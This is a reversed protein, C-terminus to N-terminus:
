DMQKRLFTPIELDEPMAAYHLTTSGDAVPRSAPHSPSRRLFAPTDIDRRPPPAAAEQRAEKAAAAKQAEAKAARDQSFGTAIVTIKIQDAMEQDIVTGFIINAEQDATRQVLSSAEAVEHLTM